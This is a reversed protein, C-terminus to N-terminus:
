RAPAAWGELSDRLSQASRDNPYLRLLTDLQARAQRRRGTFAMVSALTYRADSGDPWLALGRRAEREGEVPRGLGLWCFARRGSIRGLYTHAGRETQASDALALEDFAAQWAERRVLKGAVLYHRMSETSVPLMQPDGEPEYTVVAALDLEPHDRFDEYRLWRLSTDRYWIQLAKDRGFAYSALFPPHLMTVRSGHPLTPHSSQLLRRTGAMLRQLRVLKEFDIFAGTSPPLMTVRAPPAPALSFLALRAAVLWGLLAPQAAGLTAALAAGAGISAFVVRQPSWIPYVAVLPATAAAWWLSGAIVIPAVRAFRARAKASRAFRVAAAILILSVGLAAAVDRRSGALPLSLMARVTGALAWRGREMWTAPLAGLGSELGRPLMLGQESRVTLYVLGWVITVAASGAIWAARDAVGRPRSRPLWPLLLATAVATEKCLLAAGLALLSPGFRRAAAQQLALASFVILGVDVFHIPVAILARASETLVPFSAAAAAWAGPMHRRATRYLLFVAIGLLTTHLMVVVWPSTILRRALLGFYGQYALPRWFSVSGGGDLWSHRPSFLAYHLHDFDDAVPEGLPAGLSHLVLPVLALVSVWAWPDRFLRPAPPIPPRARGAIRRSM